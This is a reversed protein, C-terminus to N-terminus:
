KRIFKAKISAAPGNVQLIYTGPELGSINIRTQESLDFSSLTRGLIDTIHGTLAGEPNGHVGINLVDSAPVPYLSVTMQGAPGQEETGNVYNTFSFYRLNGLTCTQISADTLAVEMSGDRFTIKELDTLQFSSQSGNKERVFLQNQAELTTVMGTLLLLSAIIFRRNRMTEHIFFAFFCACLHM